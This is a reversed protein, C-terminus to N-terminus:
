EYRRPDHEVVDWDLFYNYNPNHQQASIYKQGLDYRVQPLYVYRHFLMNPLTAKAYEQFRHLMMPHQMAAAKEIVDAFVLAQAEGFGPDYSSDQAVDFLANRLVLYPELTDSSAGMVKMTEIVTNFDFLIQETYMYYMYYM